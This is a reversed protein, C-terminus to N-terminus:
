NQNTGTRAGQGGGTVAGQDMEDAISKATGAPWSMVGYPSELM